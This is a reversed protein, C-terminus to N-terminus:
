LAKIQETTLGSIEAIDEVAYGKDKMKRATDIKQQEVKAEAQEVKAEAEKIIVEAKKAM